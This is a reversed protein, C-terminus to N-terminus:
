EATRIPIRVTFTTGAGVESEVAITGNHKEVISYSVHLGLGTGKGVEKTTFFPDFLKPINEPPIGVGTDAIKIEICGNEARTSIRIEGKEKIAQAANVLLNMFVQNLQQPYGRLRPIDGFDKHVVTKYKLENWVIGLTSEINENVNFMSEKEEGPHAFNKLDQVIRTIRGTGELSESIVAVIDEIVMDINLRSELEEIQRIHSGIAELCSDELNLTKLSAMMAKYRDKVAIIDQVYESLTKLNSSVFATPNNIEHAVGAALKGISAMKETQLLQVQALKGATVDQNLSILRAPKGSDDTLLIGDTKIYRIKGDPQVIRYETNFGRDAIADPRVAELMRERDEPHLSKQWIEIPSAASDRSVGFIDYMRGDWIMIHKGITWDSIGFDGSALALSLRKENEALNHYAERIARLPIYRFILFIAMGALVSCVGILATRAILPSISRELEIQAVEVGSDYIPHRFTIVPATPTEPTQAIIQGGMDRLLRKERYTVDFRRELIEQLRIEEYQWTKPNNNVLSEVVRASFILETHVRGSMYQYAVIFYGLPIGVAIAISIIATLISSIGILSLTRPTM